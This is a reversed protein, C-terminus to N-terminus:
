KAPFLHLMAANLIHHSILYFVAPVAAEDSFNSICVLISLVTNKHGFVVPLTRYLKNNKVSAIFGLGYNMIAMGFTLSFLKFIVAAEASKIRNASAAVAIAVTALMILANANGSKKNIADTLKKFKRVASALLLPLFVIFAVKSMIATTPVNVSNQGKLMLLPLLAYTLPAALNFLVVFSINLERDGNLLSIVVPSGLASPTIATFFLGTAYASDLNRTFFITTAPVILWVVFPYFALQPRLFYKINLKLKLFSFFLMTILTYPLFPKLVSISPLIYGFALAGLLLLGMYKKLLSSM